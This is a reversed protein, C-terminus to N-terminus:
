QDYQIGKNRTRFEVIGFRAGDYTYVAQWNGPNNFSEGVVVAIKNTADHDLGVSELMSRVVSDSENSRVVISQMIVVPTGDFDRTPPGYHMDFVNQGIEYAM